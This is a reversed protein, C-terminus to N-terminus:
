KETRKEWGSCLILLTIDTKASFGMETRVIFYSNVYRRVEVEGDYKAQGYVNLPKVVRDDPKWPRTGEGDFVYDTSIYIM